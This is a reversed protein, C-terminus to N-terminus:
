AFVEQKKQRRAAPSRGLSIRPDIVPYLLDTLLNIVVFAFSVLMVIVLIVPTDQDRVSQQTLFGIGTRNFVTEVVVAGAVLDGITLALLTIAPISGNKLIHQLV